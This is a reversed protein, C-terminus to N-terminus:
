VQIGNPPPRRRQRPALKAISSIFITSRATSARRRAAARDAARVLEGAPAVDGDPGRRRSAGDADARTLRPHRDGRSVGARPRPRRRRLLPRDPALQAVDRAPDDAGAPDDVGDAAHDREGRDAEQDRDEDVRALAALSPAACRAASRHEHEDGAAVHEGAPRDAVQPAGEVPDVSPRSGVGSSCRRM